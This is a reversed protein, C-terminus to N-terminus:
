RVSIEEYSPHSVRLGCLFRKRWLWKRVFPWVNPSSPWGFSPSSQHEFGHGYGFNSGKGDLSTSCCNNLLFFRLAFLSRGSGFGGKYGNSAPVNPMLGPVPNYSDSSWCRATSTNMVGALKKPDLGMRVGQVHLFSIGIDIVSLVRVLAMAEATGIMSIALSLNNCLKTM